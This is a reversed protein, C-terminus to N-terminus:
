IVWTSMLRIITDMIMIITVRETAQPLRIQSTRDSVGSIVSLSEAASRVTASPETSKSWTQNLYLSDASPHFRASM